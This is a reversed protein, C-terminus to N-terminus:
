QKMLGLYAAIAAAQGVVVLWLKLRFKGKATKHRFILMGGLAGATGGAIALALLVKEPVRTRESGAVSKDYGYTLFTVSTIPLLWCWLAGLTPNAWWIATAIAIALGFTWLGFSVVPDNRQGGQRRRPRRSTTSSVNPRASRRM